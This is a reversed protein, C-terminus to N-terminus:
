RSCRRSPSASRIKSAGDLECACLSPLRPLHETFAEETQHALTIRDVLFLVRTVANAEFLRKILAAAMRTKGTGTAMEVLLKRRGLGMERCLTEICEKQYDRGAIRADIPITLPDRRTSLTAMRRELDEQSFVTTVQHPHADTRYAWFWVERGNALFIFPVGLQEAYARAQGEAEVPNISARKAELVAMARGNRDSLVYDAKTGDDLPYEYRVSRGDTLDWGIDRLQGDIIVRSFAENKATAVQPPM